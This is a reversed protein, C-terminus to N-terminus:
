RSSRLRRPTQPSAFRRERLSTIATPFSMQPVDVVPARSPPAHYSGYLYDSRSLSILFAVLAAFVWWFGPAPFASNSFPVRAIVPSNKKPEASGFFEREQSWGSKAEGEGM